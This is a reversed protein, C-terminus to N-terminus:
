EIEIGLTEMEILMEDQIFDISNQIRQARDYAEDNTRAPQNLDYAVLIADLFEIELEYRELHLEHFRSVLPDPQIVQLEKLNKELSRKWVEAADLQALYSAPTQDIDARRAVVNYVDQTETFEQMMGTTEIFYQNVPDPALCLTAALPIALLASLVPQLVPLM